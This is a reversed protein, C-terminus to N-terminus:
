APIWAGDRIFGHDGCATCLVSPSITLPDFSQVDWMDRGPREYAIAVDSRFTVSGSCPEGTAPAPHNIIIGYWEIDPIGEYKPNLVRNPKWCIKEITHGSGIDITHTM